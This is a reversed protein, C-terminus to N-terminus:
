RSFMAVAAVVLLIIAHSGLATVDIGVERVWSPGIPTAPDDARRFSRVAWQDFGATEGEQVDDTLEIFQNV